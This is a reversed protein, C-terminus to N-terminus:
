KNVKNSVKVAEVSYIPMGKDLFVIKMSRRLLIMLFILIYILLLIELVYGAESFSMLSYCFLDANDTRM